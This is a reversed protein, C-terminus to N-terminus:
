LENVDGTLAYDAVPAASTNREQKWNITTDLRSARKVAATNKVRCGTM